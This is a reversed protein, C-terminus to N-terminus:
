PCLPGLGLHVPRAPTGRLANHSRHTSERRSCIKRYRVGRFGCSFERKLVPAGRSRDRKCKEAQAWVRPSSLNTSFPHVYAALGTLLSRSGLWRWPALQDQGRERVRPPMQIEKCVFWHPLVHFRSCRSTIDVDGFLKHLGGFHRRLIVYRYLGDKSPDLLAKEGGVLQAALPPYRGAGVAIEQALAPM